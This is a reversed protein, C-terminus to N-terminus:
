YYEDAKEWFISNTKFVNEWGDNIRVVSWLPVYTLMVRQIKMWDLKWWSLLIVNPGMMEVTCIFFILESAATTLM